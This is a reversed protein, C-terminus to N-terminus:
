DFALKGIECDLCKGKSCFNRFLDIMGQSIITQKTIDNLNLTEAVDIIIQNDTKQMFLGYIKQVKKVLAPQKFVDFYLAFYPLVVNVIIEDARAAGVFYKLDINAKQDFIFHNKWFGDTKIIFLSRISNILVTLNHIETIKKVLINILGGHMIVKLLRAGGAIRVTPFNQPRIKFFHWITEDFYKGDYNTKIMDWLLNMRQLYEKTEKDNVSDINQVL